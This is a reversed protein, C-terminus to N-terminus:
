RQRLGLATILGAALGVAVALQIIPGFHIARGLLHAGAGGAMGVLLTSLLNMKEEGPLVLRALAGVVVGAVLNYVIAVSLGFLAATAGVLCLVLLAFFGSIMTKKTGGASLM